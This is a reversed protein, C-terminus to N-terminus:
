PHIHKYLSDAIFLAERAIGDPRKRLILLPEDPNPRIFAQVPKVSVL